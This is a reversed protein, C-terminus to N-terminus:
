YHMRDVGIRGTALHLVELGDDDDCWELMTCLADTLRIRQDECYTARGNYRRAPRDSRDPRPVIWTGDLTTSLPGVPWGLLGALSRGDLTLRIRGTPGIARTTPPFALTPAETVLPLIEALQVHSRSPADTAVSAHRGWINTALTDAQQKLAYSTQAMANLTDREFDQANSKSNECEDFEQDLQTLSSSGFYKNRVATEEIHINAPIEGVSSNDSRPGGTKRRGISASRPMHEARRAPLETLDKQVETTPSPTQPEM